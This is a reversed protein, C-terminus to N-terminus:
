SDICAIESSKNEASDTTMMIMKTDSLHFETQWIKEWYSM